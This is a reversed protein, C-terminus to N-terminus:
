KPKYDSVCGMGEEAHCKDMLPCTKNNNMFDPCAEVSFLESNKSAQELADVREKVIKLIENINDFSVEYVKVLDQIEPYVVFILGKPKQYAGCIIALEAINYEHPKNAWQPDRTKSVKITYPLIEGNPKNSTKIYLWKHAVYIRPDLISNKIYESQRTSLRFQLKRVLNGLCAMYEERVNDSKWDEEIEFNNEMLYKRPAIVDKTTFMDKQISSNNMETEILKTFDADYVIKIAEKLVNTQLPEVESCKCVNNEQFQCNNQYYRCRGLNVYDDKQFSENLLKIRRLILDKIKGFDQTIIKFAKVKYPPINNMFVLYNEIPKMPHLTSYFAVQEIDQPYNDFIEDDSRPLSDKTKFEIISDGIKFDINGRVGPIGVFIGDLKGEEVYFNPLKRFWASSLRELRKGLLMKRALNDSRPINPFKKTWFTHAPNILHTLYYYNEPFHLERKEFKIREKLMASLSENNTISKVFGNLRFIISM